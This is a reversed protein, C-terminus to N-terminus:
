TKDLLLRCVLNERSQLESTHEESRAMEIGGIGFTAIQVRAAAVGAVHRVLVHGLAAGKARPHVIGVDGKIALLRADAAPRDDDMGTGVVVGGVRAAVGALPEGARDDRLRSGAVTPLGGPSGQPVRSRQPVERGGTLRRRFLR